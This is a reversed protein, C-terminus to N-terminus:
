PDNATGIQESVPRTTGATAAESRPSSGDSTSGGAALVGSDSTKVADDSGAPGDAAGLEPSASRPRARRDRVVTLVVFSGTLLGITISPYSYRYNEGVAAVFFTAEYVLGGVALLGVELRGPRRRQTRRLLFAASGAAIALYWIPRSLWSGYILRDDTTLVHLYSRFWRNAGPNEIEYGWTNGDVGPHVVVTPRESVGIMMAFLTWRVSLYSGLHAPVERRWDRSLEDAPAPGVTAQVGGQEPPLLVSLVNQPHWVRRLEDLDQSPFAEPGLLLEDESVSMGALDYGFLVAEPQRDTADFVQSVLVGIGAAMVVVSATAGAVSVLRTRWGHWRASSGARGAVWRHVTAVLVVLVVPAANQRAALALFGSALSAALWARGRWGPTRAWRISCGAQLVVFCALWTDRGLLMVQALVPPTFILAASVLAAVVRAAAARLVLYMGLTLALTQAFLVDSPAGLGVAVGADWLKQLVPAYWDDLRGGQTTAYQLLTDANMYGPRFAWTVVGAPLLLLVV